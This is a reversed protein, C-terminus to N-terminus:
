WRNSCIGLDSTKYSRLPLAWHLCYTRACAHACACVCVVESLNMVFIVLCCKVLLNVFLICLWMLLIIFGLWSTNIGFKCPHNSLPPGM